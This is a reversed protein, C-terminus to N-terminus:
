ASPRGKSPDTRTTGDGYIVAAERRAALFRREADNTAFAAARAFAGAAEDIRGVRHLLEAHTAHLLHHRALADTDLLPALRLLGAAPGDRMAIAVAANLEVIPSPWRELLMGYLAVIQDWDTEEHSRARAHVAQIAADIAYRGARGIALAADLSALGEDVAARNWRARDQRELLLPTGDDATRAERRADILLLLALLARPEGRAPLLQAVTRALRLAELCLRERVLEAGRTAAYGENFVLYIVALVADLRETLRSAEPVEFPIRAERIKAKARVLRQAMTPEPVVFARAVEETTLGSLTRLALAVQAEIALAPDCCKLRLRLLHDEISAYELASPEGEFSPLSAVVLPEMRRELARKRLRDIGKNRAAAILWARPSPPVGAIPWSTAADAFADQVAEEAVDFDGATRITAALIRARERNAEVIAGEVELSATVPPTYRALNLARPEAM